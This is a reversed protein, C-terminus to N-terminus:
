SFIALFRLTIAYYILLAFIDNSATVFPGSAIAPDVNLRNLLMPTFAGYLAAFSMAMFLSVAVVLALFVPNFSTSDAGWIFVFHAWLGIVAGCLIGMLAGTFIEKRLVGFLDSIDLTGIALRRVILTSSQIGTNGGMAMVIPVFASLAVVEGLRLFKSMLISTVVGTALTVLLWPLRLKAAKYPSSFALEEDDSGALRFIDESAEDEIVDIVDDVMIRGALRGDDDLVPLSSLDYKSMLHACEEQDMNVTAAIFDREVLDALRLDKNRAKIMQWLAITGVMLDQNDVVFTYYFPEDEDLQAIRNLAEEVTLHEPLSVFDTTMIGGATEEGYQMLERVDDSEEKEMLSLIQRSKKEPFDLLIDAADDPHMSELIGSIKSNDLNELIDLNLHEEIEALVQPQKDLGVLNFVNSIRDRDIRAITEAIDAPHMQALRQELEKWQGERVLDVALDANKAETM